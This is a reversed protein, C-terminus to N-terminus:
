VAALAVRRQAIGDKIHTILKVLDTYDVEDEVGRLLQGGMTDGFDRVDDIEHKQRAAEIGSRLSELYTLDNELIQTVVRPLDLPRPPEPYFHITVRSGEHQAPQEPSAGASAQVFADGPSTVNAPNEKSM